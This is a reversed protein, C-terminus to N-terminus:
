RGGGQQEGAAKGWARADADPMAAWNETHGAPLGLATAAALALTAHVQAEALLNQVTQPSVTKTVSCRARKLEALLREAELYHEPGTM